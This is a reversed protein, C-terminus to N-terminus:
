NELDGYIYNICEDHDNLKSNRSKDYLSQSTKNSSLHNKTLRYRGNNKQTDKVCSSQSTDTANSLQSNFVNNPKTLDATQCLINDPLKPISQNLLNRSQSLNFQSNADFRSRSRKNTQNHNIFTNKLQKFKENEDIKTIITGM